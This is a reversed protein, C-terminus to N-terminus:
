ALSINGIKRPVKRLIPTQKSEQGCVLYLVDNDIHSIKPVTSRPDVYIFPRIKKGKFFCYMDSAATGVCHYGLTYIGYQSSEPSVGPRYIRLKTKDDSSFSSVGFIGGTIVIKAQNNSKILPFIYSDHYGELPTERCDCDSFIEEIYSKGTVWSKDADSSDPFDFRVPIKQTACINALSVMAKKTYSDLGFNVYEWASEIYLLDFAKERAVM